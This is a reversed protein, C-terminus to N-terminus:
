GRCAGRPEGGSRRGTRAAPREALIELADLEIPGRAIAGEGAVARETSTLEFEVTTTAAPRPFVKLSLEEIVGLRGISGVMLKPLDFGAANKVVKGGGPILIGTGDMFRVGIVFDRVGGHRWAPGSAGAAVAGGLTAGAAM